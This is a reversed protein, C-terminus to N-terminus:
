GKQTETRAQMARHLGDQWDPLAFDFTEEFPDIDMVSYLPREAPTPYDSTPIGTVTPPTIDKAAKFIAVAFDAWSIADGSNSVHFIGAAKTNGAILKEAARICARALDPAYTPRGIQDDVISLTDHTEALRLMTTMFNQGTADYVWSTRLIASRPQSKQLALEGNAKSHGYINIPKRPADPAYPTHAAGNFVYDTSVHVVPIDAEAAVAGILGPAQANVKFATKQDSEAQDVATYAAAIIIGDAKAIPATLAARLETETGSLDCAERNLFDATFGGESAEAAIARALQGSEGIVLLHM